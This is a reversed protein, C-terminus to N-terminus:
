PCLVLTERATRAGGMRVAGVRRNQSGGGGRQESQGGVGRNQSGNRGGRRNQSDGRNQGGMRVAGWGETRATGGGRQEPQGGYGETRAAMGGDRQELQGGVGRNQGGGVGLQSGRPGPLGSSASPEGVAMRLQIRSKSLTRPEMVEEDEVSRAPNPNCEVFKTGTNM